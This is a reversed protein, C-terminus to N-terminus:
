PRAELLLEVELREGGRILSLTVMDGVVYDLDLYGILEDSDAVPREDIATIIDGGLVIPVGNYADPRDGGRMNARAAPSNPRVETVLVGQSVPLGFQEAFLADLSFMSIGMWPHDYRGTAILAPAVRAVASAPVAYGVGEFNTSGPSVAIATNVGILEGRVNLLPGGSNGPNIAADTQIINPISFSGFGRNPGRLTRGLGSVVGVTLTNQEGFPNGIAVATQGVVVERSDGLPLPAVGPPLSRVKLVALDSDPDTGVLEALVTSGDFFRVQFRVGGEIVHNNTVIHGQDDILFGSGQGSPVGPPLGPVAPHDEPLGANPDGVVEVSVVAPSARRYLEVLLREQAALAGALDPALTPQPPITPLPPDTPRPGRPTATAPITAQMDAVQTQLAAITPDTAQGGFGGPAFNCGALALCALVFLTLYRM